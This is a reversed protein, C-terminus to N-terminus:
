HHNQVEFFCSAAAEFLYLVVFSAANNLFLAYIVDLGQKNTLQTRFQYGSFFLFRINDQYTVKLESTDEHFKLISSQFSFTEESKLIISSM